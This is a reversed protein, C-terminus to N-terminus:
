IQESRCFDALNRVESNNTQRTEDCKIPINM